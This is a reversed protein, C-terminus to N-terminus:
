TGISLRPQSALLDVIADAAREAPPSGRGGLLELAVNQAAIQRTRLAKDDLRAAIERAIRPGNADAQILEPAVAEDAAINFLTIFRTRM